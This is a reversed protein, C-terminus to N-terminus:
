HHAILYVAERKINGCRSYQGSRCIYWGSLFAEREIFIRLKYLVSAVSVVRHTVSGTVVHAFCFVEGLEEHVHAVEEDLVALDIKFTLFETLENFINLYVSAITVIIIFGTNVFM